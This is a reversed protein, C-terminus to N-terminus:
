EEGEEELYERAESYGPWNDVGAAELAGLWADRKVLRDFEAKSVTITEPEASM